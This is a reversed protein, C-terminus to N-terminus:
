VVNTGQIQKTIHISSLSRAMGSFSKARLKLITATNFPKDSIKDVLKQQFQLHHLSYQNFNSYSWGSISTFNRTTM